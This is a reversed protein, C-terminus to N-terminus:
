PLKLQLSFDTSEGQNSAGFRQAVEALLKEVLETHQDDLLPVIGQM